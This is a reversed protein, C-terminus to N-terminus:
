TIEPMFYEIKSKDLQKKVKIIANAVKKNKENLEQDASNEWWNLMIYIQHSYDQEYLAKDLFIKAKEKNIQCYANDTKYVIQYTKTRQNEGEEIYIERWLENILEKATNFLIEEEKGNLLIFFNDLNEKKDLLENFNNNM